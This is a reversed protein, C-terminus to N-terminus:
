SDDVRLFFLTLGALFHKMKSVIRNNRNFLWSVMRTVTDMGNYNILRKRTFNLIPGEDIEIANMLEYVCRRLYILDDHTCTLPLASVHRKSPMYSDSSQRFRSVFRNNPGYRLDHIKYTTHEFLSSIYGGSVVLRHSICVSKWVRVLVSSDILSTLLM